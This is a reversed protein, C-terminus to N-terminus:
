ALVSPSEVACLIYLFLFAHRSAITESPVPSDALVSPSGLIRMISMVEHIMNQGAFTEHHDRQSICFRCHYGMLLSCSVGRRSPCDRAWNTGRRRACKPLIQTPL